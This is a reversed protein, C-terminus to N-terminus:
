SRYLLGALDEIPSIINTLDKNTVELYRLTTKIDSHGLLKQIFVVDIGKDLLHTAFSHRLLHMNGSQTIGTKKKAKSLVLQISRVSLHSDPAQGEFLYHTPRYQRYYERLLVIISPSLSVVRDKKGKGSEIFLLNRKGDINRVKLAVVESVRLGCAYALAIMTRHKTNEISNILSAIQEKSIVKPLLLKKKPRPIKWFFKEWGLVQEYYFKLANIRSHLTNESLKLTDSCYQLYDKIRDVTMTDAPVNKLMGLFARFENTYTRITSASYAKLTLMQRFKELANINEKGYRHADPPPVVETVASKPMLEPQKETITQTRKELHKRLASVDLKVKGSLSASIKRYNEENLPVYWCIHTKSWRASIASQLTKQLAPDKEFYIGICEENRHFLFKLSVTKM